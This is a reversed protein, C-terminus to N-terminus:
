RRGFGAETCHHGVQTQWFSEPPGAIGFAAVVERAASKTVGADSSPGGMLREVTQEVRHHSWGLYHYTETEVQHRETESISAPYVTGGERPFSEREGEEDARGLARDLPL